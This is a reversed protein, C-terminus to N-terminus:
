AVRGHQQTDEASVRAAPRKAPTPLRGVLSDYVDAIQRAIGPWLYHDQIRQRARRGTEARLKSDSLLLGLLRALDDVNGPRFSFGADEIVERNEPIDSVLVCVGAGMADLLALSLGELDSPLVFLAANTLLEDLDSGSVWDLFLIRDSQHSRLQKAYADTHSSGGAFVLKASTNLKEFAEVLLHCNKEPSFRGLFLVYDDPQLGWELIRRPASRERIRTGNPVYITEADYRRRFHDQLTHSVAMTVSPLRVAAREGLRLVFSAMRGWKKRQWDLGQVTVATKKGTLRPLFSFLAPGLAHYHVIDHPHCMAHLTSLLTHLVTELHKSRVTPIRVIRMGNHVAVPPTFYSRCYVTLEYGREILRKGAEEYYSEIGSYKSIVGRGGIFAVRLPATKSRGPASSARRTSSCMQEYLQLLSRYHEEPSNRDQVLQRGALGMEATLRPREALYRVAARLAEVDGPPYLLGTKHDHVLERRSGLDSAVVPKAWAYSELITKGLTEYARSPMVTFRSEAIHRQLPEGELHGVFEVNDLGLDRTLGELPEKQPGGGAIKLALPSLGQMARILDSVGKEPSSLRGFYLISSQNAPTSNDKPLRQFHPLVSIREAAFGNQVLLQKAFQSPALFHDVCKRYTGLWDHICAEAMLVASEAGSGGYCHQSFVKWFKGRCSESCAEGHAVM